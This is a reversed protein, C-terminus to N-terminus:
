DTRQFEYCTHGDENTLEANAGKSLLYNGLDEYRYGFAFHLSSNGKFNQANIDAGRRLLYKVVAKENQQVVLCLLTNGADDRTEIDLGNTDVCAELEAMNSTRAAFIAREQLVKVDETLSHEKLVAEREDTLVAEDVMTMQRPGREVVEVLQVPQQFIAERDMRRRTTALVREVDDLGDKVFFVPLQSSPRWDTPNEGWSRDDASHRHIGM